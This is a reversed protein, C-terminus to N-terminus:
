LGGSEISAWFGPQIAQASSDRVKPACPFSAKDSSLSTVRLRPSPLALSAVSHLISCSSDPLLAGGREFSVRGIRIELETVGNLEGTFHRM